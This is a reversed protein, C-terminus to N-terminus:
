LVSLCLLQQNQHSAEQTAIIVEAAILMYQDGPAMM